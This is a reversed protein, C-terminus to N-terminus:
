SAVEEADFYEGTVFTKISEIFSRICLLVSLFSSFAYIPMLPIRLDQTFTGVEKADIASEYLGLAFIAGIVSFGLLFIGMMYAKITKPLKHTFIDVIIQSREVYAAFAALLSFLMCYSVIEIGGQMVFGFEGNTLKFLYRTLVSVVTALVSIIISLSGILQCLKSIFDSVKFFNQM